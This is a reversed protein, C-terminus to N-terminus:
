KKQIHRISTGPVCVLKWMVLQFRIIFRRLSAAMTTSTDGHVLILDPKGAALREMGLLVRSTIQTLTQNPAMIKLDYDPQFDFVEFVTQLMERHQGTTSWQNLAPDQALPKIVPAM